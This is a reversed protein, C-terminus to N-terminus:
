NIVKKLRDQMVQIDWNRRRSLAQIRAIFIARNFPYVIYDNAGADLNKVLTELSEDRSIVIVPIDSDNRIQEILVVGSMDTIQTGLIITDPCAGNNIMDLCQKGTSIISLKWDPQYQNLTLYIDNTSGSDADIVLIDLVAEEEVIVTKVEM